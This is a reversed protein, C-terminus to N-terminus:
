ADLLVFARGEHRVRGDKELQSLQASVTERTSGVLSALDAHTLRVDLLTGDAVPTGYEAKLRAFLSVIREPVTLFALDEAIALAEDRREHLYKAVNIALTPFRGLLGYVHEARASCLLTPTMCTAVTSREVNPSFVVEEGFLSGDTLMAITVEHGDATRRAIRVTGRKVLHVVRGADGQDFLVAGRRYVQQTFLHECDLVTEDSAREFLRSQKLYWIKNDAQVVAPALSSQHPM